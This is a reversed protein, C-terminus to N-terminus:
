APESTHRPDARRPRVREITGGPTVAKIRRRWSKQRCRPACFGRRVTVGDMVEGCELCPLSVKETRQGLLSGLQQATLEATDIETMCVGEM